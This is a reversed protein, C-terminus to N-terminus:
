PAIKRLLQDLQADGPRSLDSATWRLPIDPELGANPVPQRNFSGFVPIDVEIGSEPLTLFLITGGNIGQQNGGTPSGALSAMGCERALRALYFTASSCAEDVLLYVNGPYARKSARYREQLPEDRLLYFGDATPQPQLRMAPRYVMTDWTYVHQRVLPPLAAYRLRSELSEIRCEEKLLYRGLELIVEDAGGANGRLDVILNPTNQRDLEAFADALFGRWDMRFNFIDFTGLQLYGAQKGPLSFNWSEEFSNWRQPDRAALVSDRHAASQAAVEVRQVPAGLPSRVELAYRGSEPPYLLPLVADALDYFSAYGSIGMRNFRMGDNAGDAAVYSKINDIVASAPVGQLTEITAGPSLLPENSANRLVVLENNHVILALPLKDAQGYMLTRMLDSQNLPNLITHGCQVFASLKLLALFGEARTREVSFCRATAELMSDVQARTRYRFTGPHVTLLAERLVALDRQWAAADLPPLAKPDLAPKRDWRDATRRQGPLLFRNGQVDLEWLTSGDPRQLVYKYELVTQAPLALDVEATWTGSATAVLLLSKEWSLPPRSGRVGLQCGPCTPPNTLTFQVSQGLVPFATFVLSSLVIAITILRRVM